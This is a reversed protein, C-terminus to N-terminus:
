CCRRKPSRELAPCCHLLLVLLLLPLLLLTRHLLLLPLQSLGEGIAKLGHKGAHWWYILIQMAQKSGGTHLQGPLRSGQQQQTAAAICRHPPCCRRRRRKSQPLRHRQWCFQICRCKQNCLAGAHVEKPQLRAFSRSPHLFLRAAAAARAGCRPRTGPQSFPLAQIRAFLCTRVEDLRALLTIALGPHAAPASRVRPTPCPLYCGRRVAM